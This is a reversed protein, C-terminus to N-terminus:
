AGRFRAQPRVSLSGTSHGTQGSLGLLEPTFFSHVENTFESTNGDIKKVSLDWIVGVRIRGTPAFIDSSSVLRLHDPEAIEEVYHQVM